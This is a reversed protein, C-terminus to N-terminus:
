FDLPDVNDFAEALAQEFALIADLKFAAEVLVQKMLDDADPSNAAVVGHALIAIIDVVSDTESHLQTRPVYM